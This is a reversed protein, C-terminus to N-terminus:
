QQSYIPQTTKQQQTTTHIRGFAVPLFHLCAFRHSNPYLIYNLTFSQPLPCAVIAFFVSLSLSLSISISISAVLIPIGPVSSYININVASLPFLVPLLFDTASAGLRAITFRRLLLLLLVIDVVVVVVVVLLLVLLCRLPLRHHHHSQCVAAM